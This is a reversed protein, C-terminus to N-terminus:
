SMLCLRGTGNASYGRGTIIGGHGFGCYYDFSGVYGEAAGFAGDLLEGGAQVGEADLGGDEGGGSRGVVRVRGDEAAFVAGFARREVCEALGELGVQGAITIVDDVAGEGEVEGVDVLGAAAAVGFGDCAVGGAIVVGGDAQVFGGCAAEVQTSGDEEVGFCAEAARM